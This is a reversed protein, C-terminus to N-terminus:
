RGGGSGLGEVWERTAALQDHLTPADPVLDYACYHAHDSWSRWLLYGRRAAPPPDAANPKSSSSGPAGDCETNTPTASCRM